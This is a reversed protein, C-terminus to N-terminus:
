NSLKKVKKTVIGFGVHGLDKCLLHRLWMTVLCPMMSEEIQSQSAVLDVAHVGQELAFFAAWQTM